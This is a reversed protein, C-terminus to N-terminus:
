GKSCAREAVAAIVAAGKGSGDKALVTKIMSTKEGFLERLADSMKKAFGPHKEYVSGDIAVTHRRSLAPDMKTIVAALCSASIRAARRSVSLCAEKVEARERLNLTRIGLGKFIRGIRVLGATDDCSAASVDEARFSYKKVAKGSIAENFVHRAVEGLYMGSVMKELIQEGPRDSEADLAKDYKTLPLKNFNGWEINIIMRGSPASPGRWKTINSVEEVYCANTGTGLIIGMDCAPDSYSRAVLTGVTDNALAAVKIGAIGKRVLAEDLLAVVDHGEVGSACFGKTWRVLTGSAVGTQMVPFSFTFSLDLGRIADIREKKLFDKICGAIFDFLAKGDGTIHEKRLAYKRVKPIPTRRKGKLELALVRFNTGGLDLALFYGKEDGTAKDVYTPIMHLSSPGGALGKGMESHFDAAIAKM